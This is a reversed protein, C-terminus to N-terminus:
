EGSIRVRIWYRADADVGVTMWGEGFNKTRRLRDHRGMSAKDQMVPSGDYSSTNVAGCLFPDLKACTIPGGQYREGVVGSVTGMRRYRGLSLSRAQTALPAIGQRKKM